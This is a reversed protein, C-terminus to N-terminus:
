SPDLTGLGLLNVANTLCFSNIIKLDVGNTESTKWRDIVSVLSFIIVIILAFLPCRSEKGGVLHDAFRM